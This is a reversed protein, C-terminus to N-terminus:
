ECLGGRGDEVFRSEMFYDIRWREGVFVFLIIM